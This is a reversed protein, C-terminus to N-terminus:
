LVELPDGGVLLVLALVAGHEVGGAHPLRPVGGVEILLRHLHHQAVSLGRGAVDLTPQLDAVIAGSRDHLAHLVLAHHALGIMGALTFDQQLSRVLLPISSNRERRWLPPPLLLCQATIDGCAAYLWRRALRFASFSMAPLRWFPKTAAEPAANPAAKSAPAIASAGAAACGTGNGVGAGCGFVPVTGGGGALRCSAGGCFRLRMGEQIGEIKPPWFGSAAGGGPVLVANSGRWRASTSLTLAYREETWTM